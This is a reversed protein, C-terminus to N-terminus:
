LDKNLILMMLVLDVCKPYEFEPRSFFSLCIMTVNLITMMMSLLSSGNKKTQIEGELLPFVFTKISDLVEELSVQLLAKKKSM